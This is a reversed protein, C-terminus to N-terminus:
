QDTMVASVAKALPAIDKTKTRNINPTPSPPAKGTAVREMCSQNGRWSRPRTCPTEWLALRRPAAMAGGTTTSIM